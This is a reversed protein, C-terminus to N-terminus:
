GHGYSRHERHARAVRVKVTEEVTAVAAVDGELARMCARVLSEDTEDRAEDRLWLITERDM